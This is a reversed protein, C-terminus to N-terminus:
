FASISNSGANVAFVFQQDDSVIVAGQSKLGAGSGNGGTPVSGAAVLTGDNMRDFMLVANGSPANSIVYVAGSGGAAMAAASVALLGLCMTAMRISRIM